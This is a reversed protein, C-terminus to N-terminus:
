EGAGKIDQRLRLRDVKGSALRPLQERVVIRALREEPRLSANVEMRYEAESVELGQSLVIAAVLIPDDPGEFAHVDVETVEPRQRVKEAVDPLFVSVAGRVVLDQVRGRIYFYGQEDMYALDESVIMGDRKVTQTADPRNAYERFGATESGALRGLEGPGCRKHDADVVFLEDTLFPRGISEPREDLDEPETITGLAESNGWSEVIRANLLRRAELKTAGGIKAGMVLINKGSASLMRGATVFARLQDPVFFSWDVTRASAEREYDSWVEETDDANGYDNAIVTGGVFLCSLALVLGGTYYLPRAVYFTSDRTLPLELTWGLIETVMSWHDRCIGKPVGTTGSSFVIGWEDDPKCNPWPMEGSSNGAGDGVLLRPAGSFAKIKGTAAMGGDQVFLDPETDDVTVRLGEDSLGHNLVVASKGARMIGLVGILFAAKQQTAIAVRPGRATDLILSAADEARALLEAFTFPRQNSYLAVEGPRYRGWHRVAEIVGFQM